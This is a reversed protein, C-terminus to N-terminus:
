NGNDRPRGTVAKMATMLRAQVSELERWKEEAKMSYQRVKSEDRLFAFVNTLVSLAPALEDLQIQANLAQESRAALAAAAELESKRAKAWAADALFLSNWRELGGLGVQGLSRDYEKSAAEADGMLSAIQARLMPHLSAFAKVGLFEDYSRLSQEALALFRNSDPLLGKGLVSQRLNSLGYWAMNYVVADISLDDGDSIASARAAQYWPNATEMDGAFHMAQAIVLQSRTNAPTFSNGLSLAKRLNTAMDELRLASLDLQAIWASSLAEVEAYRFSAAMAQARLLKERPAFTAERFYQTLGEALSLWCAVTAPPRGSYRGRVVALETAAADVEGLRALYIAREARVCDSAPGDHNAALAADLRALLRSSSRKM